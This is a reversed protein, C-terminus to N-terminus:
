PHPKRTFDALSTVRISKMRRIGEEIEARNELHANFRRLGAKAAKWLLFVGAVAGVSAVPHHQVIELAAEIFHM